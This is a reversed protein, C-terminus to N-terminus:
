ANVESTSRSPATRKRGLTRTSSSSRRLASPVSDTASQWTIRSSRSGAIRRDARRHSGGFGRPRHEGRCQQAGEGRTTRARIGRRALVREGDRRGIGGVADIGRLIEGRVRTRENAGQDVRQDVLIGGVSRQMGPQGAGPGTVVGRGFEGEHQAGVHCETVSCREVGRRDLGGPVPDDSEARLRRRRVAQERTIHFRHHLTGVRHGHPEGVTRSEM